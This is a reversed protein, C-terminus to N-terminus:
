QKVENTQENFTAEYFTVKMDDNVVSKVTNIKKFREKTFVSVTKTLKRVQCLTNAICGITSPWALVLISISNAFLLGGSLMGAQNTRRVSISSVSYTLLNKFIAACIFLM